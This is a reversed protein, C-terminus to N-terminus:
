LRLDTGNTSVASLRSYVSWSEPKKREKLEQKFYAAIATEGIDGILLGDEFTELELWKGDDLELETKM